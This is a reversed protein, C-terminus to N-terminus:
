GKRFGQLSRLAEQGRNSDFDHLWALGPGGANNASIQELNVYRQEAYTGGHTM